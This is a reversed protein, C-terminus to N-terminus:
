AAPTIRFFNGGGGFLAAILVFFIATFPCM